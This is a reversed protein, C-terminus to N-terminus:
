QSKRRALLRERIGTSDFRAENQRRVEAAGEQRKKLYAEVENVHRLYYAIVGYVDVLDLTTYEQVIEEATLGDKFAELVLDLTVRSNGVRVVGDKDTELPPAEVQFILDTM